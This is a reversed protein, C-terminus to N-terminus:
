DTWQGARRTWQARCGAAQLRLGVGCGSGATGRQSRTGWSGGEAQTGHEPIACFGEERAKAGLGVSGRSDEQRELQTGLSKGEQRRRTGM